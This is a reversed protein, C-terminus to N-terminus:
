RPLPWKTPIMNDERLVVVDGVCIRPLAIGSLTANPVTLTSLHGSKGFVVSSHKAYTSVVSFHFPAIPFPDSLAELPRGILFHGPIHAEIGDEDSPLSVLPRSNLCAEIQTLVTAFEEFTLKVEALSHIKMSKVAAEWLGGFTSYTRTYIEVTHKASFLVRLYGKPDESM